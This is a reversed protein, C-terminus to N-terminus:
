FRARLDKMRELDLLYNGSIGTFSTILLLSDRRLPEAAKLCNVPASKSTNYQRLSRDGSKESMVKRKLGFASLRATM